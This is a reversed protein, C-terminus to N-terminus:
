RSGVLMSVDRVVGSTDVPVNTEVELVAWGGAVPTTVEDNWLEDDARLQDFHGPHRQDSRERYRALAIERVCRCFVEVIPGPLARIDPRAVSRHFNAELVAGGPSAAAVAYMVEVAAQGIMRSTAIDPAALASMLAEKILDKAILPLRLQSAIGTALTTKGSGPPGSVVVYLPRSPKV